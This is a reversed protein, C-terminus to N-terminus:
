KTGRDRRIQELEEEASCRGGMQLVSAVIFGLFFAVVAVIVTALISM